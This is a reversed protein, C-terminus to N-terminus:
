TSDTQRDRYTKSKKSLTHSVVYIAMVSVNIGKKDQYFSNQSSNLGVVTGRHFQGTRNLVFQGTRNLVFLACALM